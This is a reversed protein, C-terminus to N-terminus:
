IFALVPRRSQVSCIYPPCFTLPTLSFRETFFELNLFSELWKSMHKCITDLSLKCM